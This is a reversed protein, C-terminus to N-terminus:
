FNSSLTKNQNKRSRYRGKKDRELNESKNIQKRSQRHLEKLRDEEDTEKKWKEIIYHDDVDPKFFLEKLKKFIGM